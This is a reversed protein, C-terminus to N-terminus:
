KRARVALEPDARGAMNKITMASRISVRSYEKVL